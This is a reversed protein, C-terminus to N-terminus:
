FGFAEKQASWSLPINGKMLRSLMLTRPQGGELIAAQIDPSLFVLNYIQRVYSRGINESRAIEDLSKMTGNQLARDWTHARVLAKILVSDKHTKSPKLDRGNQDVILRRGGYRRFQIVVDHERLLGDPSKQILRIKDPYIIIKEILHGLVDRKELYDKEAWGSLLRQQDYDSAQRSIESFVIEEVDKLPVRVVPVGEAGEKIAKQNIYYRTYRREGSKLTRCTYTPSFARGQPDFIMGKLLAQSQYITKDKKTNNQALKRQVREWIDPAIIGDHQGPYRTGKHRIEGLYVPNNLLKSLSGRDFFSGQRRVGKQTTWSKARVGGAKLSDIFDVISQARLYGEFISRVIDAEKTNIVLKRDKVDYGLPPTGGMWMGKKKSAEIKDRIREGTVEREFQAFSLLMNLTLRGMSDKTNFSQTVSVFTVGYEDFLEVMKAFDHLSRSLRDVKYVVVVDILRNKIDAILNKLAPRDMNGGSFGGDDYHKRVTTWGESKQSKIYAEGSERQADLSNFDQEMGNESSKRTYVACRYTRKHRGTM